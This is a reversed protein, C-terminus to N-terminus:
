PKGEELDAAAVFVVVTDGYRREDAGSPLAFPEGQQHEVSLIDAFPERLYREMLKNALGKGYPPDAFAIDFARSPLTNLYAFADAAILKASDGADLAAINARLTQVARREREVFTAHAAGRSLAELGLAGSGAFLDLVRAGELAAGLVDM